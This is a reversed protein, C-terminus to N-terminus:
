GEEKEESNDSKCLNLIKIYEKVLSVSIPDNFKLGSLEEPTNLEFKKFEKSLNLHIPFNYYFQYTSIKFTKNIKRFEAVYKGIFNVKSSKQLGTNKTIEEALKNINNSNILPDNIKITPLSWNDKNDKLCLIFDEVAVFGVALEIEEGGKSNYSEVEM